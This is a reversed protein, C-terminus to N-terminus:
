GALLLESGGLAPVVVDEIRGGGLFNPSSQVGLLERLCLAIAIPPVELEAVKLWGFKAINQCISRRQFDVFFVREIRM